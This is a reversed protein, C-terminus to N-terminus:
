GRSSAEQHVTLPAVVGCVLGKEDALLFSCSCSSFNGLSSFLVLFDFFLRLALLFSNIFLFSYTLFFLVLRHTDFSPTDIRHRSLGQVNKTLTLYKSPQTKDQLSKDSSGSSKNSQSGAVRITPGTTGTTVSTSTEGEETTFQTRHHHEKSDSQSNTSGCDRKKRRLFRGNSQASLEQLYSIHLTM